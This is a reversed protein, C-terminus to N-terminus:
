IIALAKYQDIYQVYGRCLVINMRNEFLKQFFLILDTEDPLRAVSEQFSYSFISSLPMGANGKEHALAIKKQFEKFLSIKQFVKPITHKEPVYLLGIKTKSIFSKRDISLFSALLSASLGTEKIMDIMRIYNGNGANAHHEIYNDLTWNKQDKNLTIIDSYTLRSDKIFFVSCGIRKCALFRHQGDIIEMNDNVLIPSVEILHPSKKFENVMKDVKELDTKRNLNSFRFVSYDDTKSIQM